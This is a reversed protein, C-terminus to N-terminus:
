RRSRVAETVLAVVLRVGFVAAALPLAVRRWGHMSRAAFRLASRHHEIQMRFPVQRRSVGEEHTVVAAPEFGVGWGAEHARWCLDIDEAFMFYAEDFGGLEKMASSRALFCAGSVWGPSLSAGARPPEPRYRRSFRNEPWLLGLLAHGAADGMSPFPRVSPYPDGAPTLISPGVIAWSPHALLAAVLTSVAGDHLHLDPNCVLVFEAPGMVAMGANAGAGYGLNRPPEVVTADLSAGELIARAGGADGNEVVVVTACGEALLSAVCRALVEGANFDVVVAAVRAALEDHGAV